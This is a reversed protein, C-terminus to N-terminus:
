VASFVKSFDLSKLYRELAFLDSRSESDKRYAFYLNWCLREDDFPVAVLESPWQYSSHAHAILVGQGELAAMGALEPEDVLHIPELTFGASQCEKVLPEYIFEYDSLLILNQGALDAPALSTRRALPNDERMILAFVASCLLTQRCEPFSRKMCAILAADAKKDLLQEWCQRSNGQSISLNFGGDCEAFRGLDGLLSPMGSTLLAFSSMIKVSKESSRGAASGSRDPSAHKLMLSDFDALLGEADKAFRKGELTLHQDNGGREVLRVGLEAEVSRVMKSVAQRSMFLEDAARSYNLTRAFVVFCRLQQIDM